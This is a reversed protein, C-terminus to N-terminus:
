LPAAFPPLYTEWLNYLIEDFGAYLSPKKQRSFRRKMTRRRNNKSKKGINAIAM